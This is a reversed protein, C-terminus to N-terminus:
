QDTVLGIVHGDRGWVLYKSSFYWKPAHSYFCTAHIENILFKGSRFVVQDNKRFSEAIIKPFLEFDTKGIVQDPSEWHIERCLGASMYVYRSELNKIM